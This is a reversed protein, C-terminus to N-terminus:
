TGTGKLQLQLQQEAAPADLVHVAQVLLMTAKPGYFMIQQKIQTKNSEEKKQKIRSSTLQNYNYKLKFYLKLAQFLPATVLYIKNSENKHYHNAKSTRELLTFLACTHQFRSVLTLHDPCKKQKRKKEKKKRSIASHIPGCGYLLCKM